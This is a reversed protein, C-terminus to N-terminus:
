GKKKNKALKEEKKKADRDLIDEGRSLRKIDELDDPDEPFNTLTMLSPLTHLASYVVIGKEFRSTSTYCILFVIDIFGILRIKGSWRQKNIRINWPHIDSFLNTECFM